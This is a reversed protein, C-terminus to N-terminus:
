PQCLWQGALGLPLAPVQFALPSWGGPVGSLTTIPPLSSNDNNLREATDSEKRSWPSCCM